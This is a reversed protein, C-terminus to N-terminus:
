DRARKRLDKFRKFKYGNLIGAYHDAPVLEVKPTVEQARRIEEAVKEALGTESEGGCAVRILLLDESFEDSPDAQTLIIEYEDIGGISSLIDYLASINVLTGKIKVIGGVRYPTTTFRPEWGGCEPCAEHSLSCVDGVIYRLLCTGRRDLHTIVVLGEDGEPMPELTEPDLIEFFYRAPKPLHFGKLEACEMSPCQMETFGYGNIVRVDKAGMDSLRCRVDERMGGPSGEGMPMALRVSSFDCGMEQARMVLRRLFFSIGWLVTVGQKEIMKIVETSRRILGFGGDFSGTYGSILKAGVAQTGYYSSLYGQHPVSTLPFLNMVTDESTVGAIETTRKLQSIRAYHDYCTDYFPTSASTSGTTFIIEWLTREERPAGPIRDMDLRFDDPRAIYDEKRTLPIKQLDDLGKIDRKSIGLKKFVEIYYPHTKFVLDMQHMFREEQAPRLDEIRTVEKRQGLMMTEKDRM